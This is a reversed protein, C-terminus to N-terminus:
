KVTIQADSRLQALFSDSFANLRQQALAIAVQERTADDNAAATRGCMMLLMLNGSQTTLAISTEGDDLKALELAIDRPIQSPTQTRRDLTEAPQNLAVGYLDDCRNVRNRVETAYQLAEPTRGGAIYYVAYEIESYRPSSPTSEQIDRLQFLAVANPLPLPSSIEGKNLALIVPRLAPPLDNIPLWDLRGGNNRTDTASFRAAEASFADFGELKSIREAEAEVAELTQPTIPIIIESLLVRVGGGGGEQGVARDIEADTPRARSLFASRIYERWGLNMAVFDRFTERSVGGANLAEIFEKASLNAQKAFEEMGQEIDEPALEIGAEDMVPQKLRDNILEERALEVPDGPARLLRLFQERQELEYYTVVADNVQIAASFLGQAQARMDSALGILLGCCGVALATRIPGCSRDARPARRNFRYRLQM